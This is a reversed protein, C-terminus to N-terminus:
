NGEIDVNFNYQIRRWILKLSSDELRVEIKIDSNVSYKVSM